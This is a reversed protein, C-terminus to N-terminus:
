ILHPKALRQVIAWFTLEDLSSPGLNARWDVISIIEKRPFVRLNSQESYRRDMVATRQITPEAYFIIAMRDVRLNASM